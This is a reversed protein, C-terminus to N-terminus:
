HHVCVLPDSNNFNLVNPNIELYNLRILSNINILRVWFYRAMRTEHVTAMRINPRVGVM